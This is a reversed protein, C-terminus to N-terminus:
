QKDASGPPMKRHVIVQNFRELVKRYREAAAEKQEPPANHFDAEAQKLEALLTEELEQRPPAPRPNPKPEPM